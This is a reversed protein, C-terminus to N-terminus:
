LLLALLQLQLLPLFSSKVPPPFKDGASKLGEGATAIKQVATASQKAQTELKKLDEETEIIERQLADYQVKSIDGNALAQNAQEAATKM